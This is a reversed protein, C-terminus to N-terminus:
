GVKRRMKSYISTYYYIKDFFLTKVENVDILLLDDIENLKQYLTKVPSGVVINNRRNTSFIKLLDFFERNENLIFIILDYDDISFSKAKIRTQYKDVKIEAGVTRSILQYYGNSTDFVLIKNPRL